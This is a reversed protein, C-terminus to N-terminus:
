ALKKLDLKHNQIEILCTIPDILQRIMLGMFFLMPTGVCSLGVIFAVGGVPCFILLFIGVIIMLTITLLVFYEIPFDFQKKKLDKLQLKIKKFYAHVSGSQAIDEMLEKKYKERYEDSNIKKLWEKEPLTTSTSESEIKSFAHSWYDQQDNNLLTKKFKHYQSYIEDSSGELILKENRKQIKKLTKDLKQEFKILDMEKVHHEQIFNLHASGSELTLMLNKMMEQEASVEAQALSTLLFTFTLFLSILKKM